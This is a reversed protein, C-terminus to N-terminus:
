EGVGAGLGYGAGLVGKARTRWRIERALGFFILRYVQRNFIRVVEKCDDFSGLDIPVFDVTGRETGV